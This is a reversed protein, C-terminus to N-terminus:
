PMGILKHKQISLRWKPNKLCYQITKHTNEHINDGDM